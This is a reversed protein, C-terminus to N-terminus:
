GVFEVDEKKRKKFQKIYEEFLPIQVPIAFKTFSSTIIAEGVDLSAINRDDASLDQSASDIIASRESAMVNGLIIKTNMNALITRPILSSLQTIATLGVKFKRGERAVTNYINDGVSALVEASLVRPAEELIISVVPKDKLEGKSKYRKYRNLLEHIIISGVLLELEDLFLSTDIIVKRGEELAKLIDDLTSEGSTTSFVDNQCRVENTQEDFYLGFLSDFKRRLVALTRQDVGEMETGRVIESLWNEQHERYYRSMAQEQADTFRVIGDFHWPRVINLNFTLTLSGRTSTPTYYLLFKKADPHDKLGEANRGYYEDHPDLILMGCYDKDLVDWLMVKVLNSKGKGTTAPILVHHAFVNHGDLYVPVDLIKSGSRIKGFFIPNPPTTLFEFDNKEARRVISFFNPLTKPVKAIKDDIRAINKANAIVYSRLNEEMFNLNEKGYGELQMGSMLELTKMELQTGYGLDFVQFLLYSNESEDVVLLDGLEISEGSKQRIIIKGHTGAIVQGVIKM